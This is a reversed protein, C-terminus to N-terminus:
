CLVRHKGSKKPVVHLCSAFPSDSRSIISDKLWENVQEAVVKQM